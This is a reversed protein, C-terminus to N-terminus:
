YYEDYRSNIGDGIFTPILIAKLRQLPIVLYGCVRWPNVDVGNPPTSVGTGVSSSSGVARSRIHGSQLVLAMM